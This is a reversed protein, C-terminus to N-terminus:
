GPSEAPPGTHEDYIKASPNSLCVRRKLEAALQTRHDPDMLESPLRWLSPAMTLEHIIELSAAFDRVERIAQFGIRQHTRLSFDCLSCSNLEISPRGLCRKLNRFCQLVMVIILGLLLVAKLGLARVGGDLVTVAALFACGSQLLMLLLLTLKRGPKEFVPWRLTDTENSEAGAM